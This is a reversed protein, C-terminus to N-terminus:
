VASCGTRANPSVHTSVFLQSSTATDGEGARIHMAYFVHEVPNLHMNIQAALAVDAFLTAAQTVKCLLWGAEIRFLLADDSTMTAALSNHVCQVPDIGLAQHPFLQMTLSVVMVAHHVALSNGLIRMAKRDCHDLLVPLSAGQTIAVEPTVYFRIGQPSDLLVGMLGREQLHVLPLEHQYHYQALFCGAQEEVTRVRAQRVSRPRKGSPGLPLLDPSMYLQMTEQTLICPALIEKPLYKFFAKASAFSPPGSSLWRCNKFLSQDLDTGDRLFVMFFRRRYAPSIEGLQLSAKWICCMGVDKMARCFVEFHQHRVFGEVQEMLLVPVDVVGFLEALELLIIGDPSRLGEGKGACSWPQCPPSACVVHIPRLHFAKRWWHDRFDVTLLASDVPQPDHQLDSPRSVEVVQSDMARLPAICAPERELLWSVHARVGGTQLSAIARSWGGFGGAFIEAVQLVEHTQVPVSGGFFSIDGTSDLLIASDEKRVFARLVKVTTIHRLLIDYDQHTAKLILKGGSTVTTPRTVRAPARLACNIQAEDDIEAKILVHDRAKIVHDTLKLCYCHHQGVHESLDGLAFAYLGQMETWFEM